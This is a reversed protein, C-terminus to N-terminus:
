LIGFNKSSVMWGLSQNIIERQCSKMMELELEFYKEVFKVVPLFQIYLLSKFYNRNKKQNMLKKVRSAFDAKYTM